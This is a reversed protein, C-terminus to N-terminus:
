FATNEFADGPKVTRKKKDACRDDIIEQVRIVWTDSIRRHDNETTLKWGWSRFYFYFLFNPKVYSLIVLTEM